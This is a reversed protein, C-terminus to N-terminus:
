ESEEGSSKDNDRKKWKMYNKKAHKVLGAYDTLVEESLTGHFRPCKDHCHGMLHYKNCVEKDNMKCIYRQKDKYGRLNFPHMISYANQTGIISALTPVVTNNVKDGEVKQNKNRSRDRGRNHRKGRGKGRSRSYKSRYRSCESDSDSNKSENFWLPSTPHM